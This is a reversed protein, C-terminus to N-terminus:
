SQEEKRAPVPAFYGVVLLLVGVGIFSIIRELGGRNSLEIFFLKVLVLTVLVAGAIWIERRQVRNGAIMLGIACLSWALSLCAQAVMSHMMPGFAYPVDAFHHVGRLVICTYTLFAGGLVILRLPEHLSQWALTRPNAEAVRNLWRWSTVLILLMALELPNAIPLYPLPASNGSAQLNALFLWGILVVALPLTTSFRYLDPLRAAPWLRPAARRASWLLWAALPLVWGLWRWASGEDGLMLFLHRCELSAVLLLVWSSVVNLMEDVSASLLGPVVRLAAFQAALALGFGLLGFNGLLHQDLHFDALATIATLPLLTLCLGALQAWRWRQAILLLVLVSAAMVGLFPHGALRVGDQVTLRVLELDWGFAWWGAAWLLAPLTILRGSAAFAGPAEKQAGHHLRWALAFASLAIIIPTWFGMHGFATLEPALRALQPISTTAFSLGALGELLLAFWFAPALRVRQAAWMLLFGSAAWVATATQWPLVFLVALSLFGLGFVMLWALRQVAAENDRRRADQVALGISFLSALGVLSAIILGSWGSGGFSLVSGQGGHLNLVFLLGAALQVLLSNGLWARAQLRVGIFATALGMLAWAAATNETNLCLPAILYLFWLGSTSLAPMAASFVDPHGERRLFWRMVAVSGLLSASVIAFVAVPGELLTEGHLHLRGLAGGMAILLALLANGQWGEQRWQLGLAIVVMGGLALCVVTGEAPNVLPAILFLSWLGLTSFVIRLGGDWHESRDHASVHRSHVFVNCLMSLGLMLAGLASGQLLTADGASIQSLYSFGAGIQLLVAFARALPRQQRHGIWYIGAAEVAWAASTWEADLGLPIALSAFVVGLALFVETLLRCRLPQSAHIAMALLLYFFGLVFASIAPGFEFPQTIAYQLGFGVLPTGFLITGDVYRQARQGHRALWDLWEATNGSQPTDADALLMRRAFLLGIAVFMLFFLILFPQTSGYHEPQYSRLGWALGILFTGFFGILNLPRWAKFWAIGLIVTNLLAFYSFLAVHSGSGTSVLVPAAFGGLSGAVALSMANQSIALVGSLGAVAVLLLLGLQTPLIPEGHLKLASFVALYMVAVSGGQMLLAYAPRKLRLRWGLVLAALAAGAVALYRLELPIVVHSSVERLLFSLGLFLVIMGVRVFTNGGFLWNRAATFGRQLLNPGSEVRPRAPRLPPKPRAAPSPRSTKVPAPAVPAPAVPAAVPEPARPTEVEIPSLTLAASSAPVDPAPAPEALATATAVPASAESFEIFEDAPPDIEQPTAPSALPASTKSTDVALAAYEPRTPSPAEYVPEPPPEARPTNAATEQLINEVHAIRAQLAELLGLRSLKQEQEGLAYEAAELKKALARIEGQADIVKGLVFGIAAGIVAGFGTLDSAVGALFGFFLGLILGLIPM